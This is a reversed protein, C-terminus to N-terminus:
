FGEKSKGPEPRPDASVAGIEMFGRFEFIARAETKSEGGWVKNTESIKGHSQVMCVTAGASICVTAKIKQHGLNWGSRM